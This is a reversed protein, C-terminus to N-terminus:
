FKQSGRRSVQRSQLLRAPILRRSCVSKPHVDKCASYVHLFNCTSYTCVNENFNNCIPRNNFLEVKRGQADTLLRPPPPPDLPPPLPLFPLQPCLSSYHGAAGCTSCTLAQAGGVVMLLIESDFISWNLRLNSQSIFLAAKNAFAKHYQYFINRGYKLNLDGILALYSDLEARREPFVSCIVDRYIGFAM